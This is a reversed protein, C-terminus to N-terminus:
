RSTKELDRCVWLRTALYESRTGAITEPNWIKDMAMATRAESRQGQADDM